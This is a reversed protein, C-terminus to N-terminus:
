RDSYRLFIAFTRNAGPQITLAESCLITIYLYGSGSINVLDSFEITSIGVNSAVPMLGNSILGSANKISLTIQRNNASSSVCIKVAVWIKGGSTYNARYNAIDFIDSPNYSEANFEITTETAASINQIADRYVRCHAKLISNGLGAWNIWGGQALSSHDHVVIPIVSYIGKQKPM